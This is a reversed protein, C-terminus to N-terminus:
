CKCDPRALPKKKFSTPEEEEEEGGDEDGFSLLKTDRFHLNSANPSPVPQYGSKLERGERLTRTNKRPNSAPVNSCANKKQQSAHFSITL